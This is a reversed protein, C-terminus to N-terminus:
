SAQSARNQIVRKIADIVLELEDHMVMHGSREAVILESDSSLQLMDRQQAQWIDELQRIAEASMGFAGVDVLKGPPAYNKQAQQAAAYEYVFEGAILLVACSM